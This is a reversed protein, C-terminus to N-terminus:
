SLTAFKHLADAAFISPLDPTSLHLFFSGVGSRGLMLGPTMGLSLNDPKLCKHRYQAMMRNAVQYVHPKSYKSTDLLESRFCRMAVWANGALGHCLSYSELDSTISHALSSCTTDLARVADFLNSPNQCIEFARMRALAIGPAGHCWATQFSISNEDSSSSAPDTRFDPWNRAAESYLANEYHFAAQALDRYEPRRVVSFLELLAYGIGSAGHSFGLLNPNKVGPISPWSCGHKGWEAGNRIRVAAREAFKVFRSQGTIHYLGLYAIVAGASGAVLDFHGHQPANQEDRVALQIAQRGLEKDDILAAIHAAAFTIGPAGEFLGAEGGLTKKRVLHLAQRAAMAAGKQFTPQGTVFFLEALFIAPGSVGSYISGGLTSSTLVYEDKLRPHPKYHLDLWTARDTSSIQTRCLDNGIEVAIAEYESPRNKLDRRDKKRKSKAPSIRPLALDYVDKSGPNLYPSELSINEREFVLEVQRLSANEDTSGRKGASILGEAILRSRNQGFSEGNGPDEAIAIGPAQQKTLAPTQNRLFESADRYSEQFIGRVAEFDSKRCYVVFCDSRDYHDYTNVTKLHYPLGNRRFSNTLLKLLKVAGVSSINCYIRFIDVFCDKDFSRDGITYFFGNSLNRYVSPTNISVRDQMGGEDPVYGLSPYVHLGDKQATLAKKGDKKLIWGGSVSVRDGVAKQLALELEVNPRRYITRRSTAFTDTELRCYFRRYIDRSLNQLLSQQTDESDSNQQGAVVRHIKGSWVYTDNATVRVSAALSRIANHYLSM